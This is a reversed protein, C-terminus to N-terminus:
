KTAGFTQQITQVTDYASKIAGATKSYGYQPNQMLNKNFQDASFPSVTGDPHNQLLAGTWKPDTWDISDPSIALTTAAQQTYPALYDKPTMGMSIASAMWPFRQAAQKGLYNNLEAQMQATNQGGKIAASTWWNVMNDSSPTLYAGASQRVAAQMEAATGIPSGGAAPSQYAAKLEETIQETTYRMSASRTAMSNLQDPTLTVGMSQAQETILASQQAIAQAASAPDTGIQQQWAKQGASYKQWWPTAYMAADIEGQNWNNVVASQLVRLVGPDSTAWALDGYNANLYAQFEPHAAVQQAAWEEDAQWSADKVPNAALGAPAANGSLVLPDGVADAM